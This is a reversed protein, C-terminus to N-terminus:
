TSSTTSANALAAVFPPPSTHLTPVPISVDTFSNSRVTAAAAPTSGSTRRAGARAASSRRLASSGVRAAM